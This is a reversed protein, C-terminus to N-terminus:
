RGRFQLALTMTRRKLDQLRKYVDERKKVEALLRARLPVWARVALPPRGAPGVLRTHTAYNWKYAEDGLLFDFEQAGHRYAQEMMWENLISGVGAKAWQPDYAPLWYYFRGDHLVGAHGAVLTGGLRMTTVLLHKRERLLEFLRVLARSEFADIFGSARYQRSKWRLLEALAAPAEDNWSMTLGHEANLKKVQRARNSRFAADGLSRAHAVCAEWTPFLTFDILPSVQFSGQDTRAKWEAVTVRAHSVRPLFSPGAKGPAEIPELLDLFPVSTIIKERALGRPVIRLLRYTSGAVAYDVLEFARGPHYAEAVCALYDPSSFLNVKTSSGANSAMGSM